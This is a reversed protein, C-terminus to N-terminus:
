LRPHRACNICLYVLHWSISANIQSARIYENIICQKCRKKHSNHECLNCLRCAHKFVNHECLLKIYPRCIMCAKTFKGHECKPACIACSSKYHGHECKRTEYIKKSKTKCRERNRERCDTCMKYFDNTCNRIGFVSVADTKSAIKGCKVCKVNDPNVNHKGKERCEICYKFWRKTHNSLGFLFAAETDTTARKKKCKSCTLKISTSEM